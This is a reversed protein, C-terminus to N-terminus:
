KKRLGDSRAYSKKSSITHSPMFRDLRNKEWPNSLAFSIGGHLRNDQASSEAQQPPVQPLDFKGMEEEPLYMMAKRLLALLENRFAYRPNFRFIRVKGKM